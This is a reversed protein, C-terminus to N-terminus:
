RCMEGEGTRWVGDCVMRAGARVTYHLLCRPEYRLVALLARGAALAGTGVGARVHLVLPPPRAANLGFGVVTAAANATAATSASAGATTTTSAASITATAVTALNVPIVRL